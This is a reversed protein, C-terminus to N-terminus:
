VRESPCLVRESQRHFIDDKGRLKEGYTYLMGAAAMLELPIIQTERKSLGDVLQQPTDAAAAARPKQAPEWMPGGLGKSLWPPKDLVTWEADSYIIVPPRQIEGLKYLRPKLLPIGRIFLGMGMALSFDIKFRSALSCQKSPATTSTQWSNCTPSGYASNNALWQFFPQPGGRAIIHFCSM